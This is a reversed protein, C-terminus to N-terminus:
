SESVHLYIDTVSRAIGSYCHQNLGASISISQLCTHQANGLRALAGLHCSLEQHLPSRSAKREMQIGGCEAELQQM